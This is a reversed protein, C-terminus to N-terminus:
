RRPHRRRPVPDDERDKQQVRWEHAEDERHSPRLRGEVLRRRYYRNLHSLAFLSLSPPTRPAFSSAPHSSRLSSASRINQRREARRKAERRKVAEEESGINHRRLEASQGKAGNAGRKEGKQFPVIFDKNFQNITGLFAPVVWDIMYFYEKLNNQIPTGTLGIRRLTKMSKLAEQVQGTENKVYSHVEDCM